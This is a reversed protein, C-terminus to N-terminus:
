KWRGQRSLRGGIYAFWRMIERVGTNPPIDQFKLM